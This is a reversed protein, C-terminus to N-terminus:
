NTIVHDSHLCPSRWHLAGVWSLAAPVNHLRHDWPDRIFGVKPNCCDEIEHGPVYCSQWMSRLVEWLRDVKKMQCKNREDKTPIQILWLSVQLKFCENPHPTWQWHLSGLYKLVFSSMIQFINLLKITRLCTLSYSFIFLIMDQSSLTNLSMSYLESKSHLPWQFNRFLRRSESNHM